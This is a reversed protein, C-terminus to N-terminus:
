MHGDGFNERMAADDEVEDDGRGGPSGGIWRQIDENGDVGVRM